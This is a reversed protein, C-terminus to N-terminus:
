YVEYTTSGDSWVIEYYGHSGDACSPYATRSVEYIGQPEPEVYSAATGITVIQTVPETTIEESIMERSDEKGDVYKVKYTVNKMGNIGPTTVQSTGEAYNDSYQTEEEFWIEEEETIEEYTVRTVTVTDGSALKTDASPSVSDEEGLKIDQEELLEGVTAAATTVKNSKGGDKLTVTKSHTVEIVMGEELYAEDPYNLSDEDGVTVGATKLADAVTEGNFSVEIETDGDKITVNYFRTVLISTLEEDIKTDASPSVQDKESVTVGAESLADGVTKGTNIEVTTSVGGDKVTVNIKKGGCATLLALCLVLAAAMAANKLNFIKKM